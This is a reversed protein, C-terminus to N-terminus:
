FSFNFLKSPALSTAPKPRDQHLQGAITIRPDFGTGAIVGRQVLTHMPVGGIHFASLSLQIAM